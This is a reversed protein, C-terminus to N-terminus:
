NTNPKKEDSKKDDSKKEELKPLDAPKNKNLIKVIDDTIDLSEQSYLITPVSNLTNGSKDLVFQYGAGKAEKTIVDTIEKVIGQRMRATQQELVQRHSRAYEEIDRQSKQTEALKDQVAKKKQERVETTYETKESDERLKNLDEVQKRYQAVMEEQEKTYGDATEKLKGQAIPTKYYDNFVRNLDITVIRGSPAQALAPLVLAVTTIAIAAVLKMKM